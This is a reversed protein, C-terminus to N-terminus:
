TFFVLKKILLDNKSKCYKYLSLLYIPEAIPHMHWYCPLFIKFLYLKIINQFVACTTTHKQIGHKMSLSNSEIGNVGSLIKLIIEM